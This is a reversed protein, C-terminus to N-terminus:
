GGTGGWISPSVVVSSEEPYPSNPIRIDLYRREQPKSYLQCKLCHLYLCSKRRGIAGQSAVLNSKCNDKKTSGDCSLVGQEKGYPVM